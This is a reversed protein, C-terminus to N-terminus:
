CGSAGALPFNGRYDAFSRACAVARSGLRTGRCLHRTEAKVAEVSRKLQKKAKERRPCPNKKTGEATKRVRVRVGAFSVRVFYREGM